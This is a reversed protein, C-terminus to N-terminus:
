EQEIWVSSPSFKIVVGEIDSDPVYLSLVTGVLRIANGSGYPPIITLKGEDIDLYLAKGEDDIDTIGAIQSLPLFAYGNLLFIPTALSLSIGLLRKAGFEDTGAATLNWNNGSKYYVSGLVAGPSSGTDQYVDGFGESGDFTYGSLDSPLTFLHGYVSADQHLAGIDSTTLIQRWDVPM